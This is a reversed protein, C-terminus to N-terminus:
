VEDETLVKFDDDHFGFYIKGNRGACIIHGTMQPIEGLYVFAENSLFEKYYEVNMKYELNENAIDDELCKRYWKKIKILSGYKVKSVKM